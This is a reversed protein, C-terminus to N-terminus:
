AYLERMTECEFLLAFRNEALARSKLEKKKAAKLARMKKWARQAERRRRRRECLKDVIFDYMAQIKEGWVGIEGEPRCPPEDPYHVVLFQKALCKAMHLNREESHRRDPGYDGSHLFAEMMRAVTRYKDVDRTPQTQKIMRVTYNIKEFAHKPFGLKADLVAHDVLLEITFIFIPENRIYISVNNQLSHIGAHQVNAWFLAQQYYSRALVLYNSNWEKDGRAKQIVAKVLCQERTYVPRNATTLLPLEIERLGRLRWPLFLRVGKCIIAIADKKGNIQAHTGLRLYSLIFQVQSQLRLNSNPHSHRSNMTAKKEQGDSHYDVWPHYTIWLKDIRVMSNFGPRSAHPLNAQYSNLFEVVRPLYRMNIIVMRRNATPDENHRRRRIGMRVLNDIDITVPVTIPCTKPVYNYLLNPVIGTLFEIVEQHYYSATISFFRFLSLSEKAIEKNVRLLATHTRFSLYATNYWGLRYRQTLVNGSDSNLVYNFITNRVEPPLPLNSRQSKRLISSPIEEQTNRGILSTTPTSDPM